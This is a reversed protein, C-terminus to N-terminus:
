AMYQPQSYNPLWSPSVDPQDNDLRLMLCPTLYDSYDVGLLTLRGLKSEWLAYGQETKGSFPNIAYTLGTHLIAFGEWNDDDAKMVRISEFALDEIQGAGMWRLANDTVRLRVDATKNGAVTWESYEKMEVGNIVCHTLVVTIAERDRNELSLYLGGEDAGTLTICVSLKENPDARNVSEEDLLMVPASLGGQFVMDPATEGQATVCLLVCCSVLMLARLIRDM